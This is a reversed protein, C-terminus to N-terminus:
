VGKSLPKIINKSGLYKIRFQELAALDAPQAAEIDKIIQQLNEFVTMKSHHVIFSSHYIRGLM